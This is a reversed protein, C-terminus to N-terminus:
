ATTHLLTGVMGGNALQPVSPVSNVLSLITNAQGDLVKRLLLNDKEQMMNWNQLGTAAAVTGEISDSM